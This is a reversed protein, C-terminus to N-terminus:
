YVQKSGTALVKSQFRKHENSMIQRVILALTRYIQQNTAVELTTGYESALQDVLHHEFESKTFKKM